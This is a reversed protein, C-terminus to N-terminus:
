NSRLKMWKQIGGRGHRPKWSTDCKAPLEIQGAPAALVEVISSILGIKLVLLSYVLDPVRLIINRRITGFSVFWCKITKPDFRGRAEPFGM